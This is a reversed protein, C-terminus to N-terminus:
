KMGIEEQISHCDMMMRLIIQHKSSVNPPLKDQRIKLFKPERM